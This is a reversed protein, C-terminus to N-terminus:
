SRYGGTDQHSLITTRDNRIGGGVSLGTTNTPEPDTGKPHCFHGDESDTVKLMLKRNNEWAIPTIGFDLQGGTDSWDRGNVVVSLM